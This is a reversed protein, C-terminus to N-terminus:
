DNAARGHCSTVYGANFDCAALTYEEGSSNTCKMNVNKGNDSKVDSECSALAKVNALIIDMKSDSNLNANINFAM